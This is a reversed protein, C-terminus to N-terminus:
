APDPAAGAQRRLETARTLFPEWVENFADGTRQVVHGRGPIVVREAGLGLQDALADSAAEFVEDWGGSVVLKPFPSERLTDLPLSAEWPVREGMLLRVQREMAEPLAAPLADTPAGLQEMFALYFDRPDDLEQRWGAHQAIQREVASHGRVLSLAPTEIVTLSHVADPRRAAAFIAGVAGYSHGVLHAGAGLLPALDNADVEFDSRDAVPNPEYGRRDPVVLTWREALAAQKSWAQQSTTLSGHVLV